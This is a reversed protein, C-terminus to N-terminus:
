RIKFRLWGPSSILFTKPFQIIIIKELNSLLVSLTRLPLFAAINIFISHLFLPQSMSNSSTSWIPGTWSLVYVYESVIPAWFLSTLVLFIKYKINSLLQSNWSTITVHPIAFPFFSALLRHASAMTRLTESRGGAGGSWRWGWNWICIRPWM